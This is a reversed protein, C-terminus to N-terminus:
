AFVTCEGFLALLLRSVAGMPVSQSSLHKGIQSFM